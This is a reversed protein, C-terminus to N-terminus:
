KRPRPDFSAPFCHYRNLIGSKKDMFADAGVATTEKQTAMFNIRGRISKACEAKSEYGEELDWFNTATPAHQTHTWLVWAMAVMVVAGLTKAKM